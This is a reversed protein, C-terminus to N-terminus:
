KKDRKKEMNIADLQKKYADREAMIKEIDEKLKKLKDYDFAWGKQLYHFFDDVTFKVVIEDESM